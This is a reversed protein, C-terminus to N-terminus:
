QKCNRHPPGTLLSAGTELRIGHLQAQVHKCEERKKEPITTEPSAWMMHSSKRATGYRTSQKAKLHQEWHVGPGVSCTRSDTKRSEFHLDPESLGGSQRHVRSWKAVTYTWPKPNLNQSTSGLIAVSMSKTRLAVQCPVRVEWVRTTPRVTM